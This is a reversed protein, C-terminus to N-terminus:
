ATTRPGSGLRTRLGITTRIRRLLSRNMVEPPTQRLVKVNLTVFSSVGPCRCLYNVENGAEPFPEPIGYGQREWIWRPYLTFGGCGGVPEWGPPLGKHRPNFDYSRRLMEPTGWGDWYRIRAPIKAKDLYWNTAGLICADPYGVYEKVLQRIESVYGLYYSDISLIHETEPHIQLAFSNAANRRSSLYLLRDRTVQPPFHPYPRYGGTHCYFPIEPLRWYEQVGSICVATIHDKM